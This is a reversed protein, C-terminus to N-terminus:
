RLPLTVTFTTGVGPESEVAIKGRHLEVCKKVITLGLGTGPIMGVNTARSFSEFLKELDEQPIGIGQDQIRFIAWSDTCVLDFQVTGGQPSYKIANSLLNTIIHGLLKEDMEANTCDGLFVFNLIHHPCVSIQISEVIERCFTELDMRSPEFKLRGAEAKGITLIDELLQTMRLVASQIRRFHNHKKEESLRNSYRELLETSSQITTLPTRFEHSVLSVFGSRLDSLEREKELAKRIEVEAQKRETIDRGVAQYEIINGQEDFIVARDTWQNWRIEGSPLIVRHEYTVIPQVKSMSNISQSVSEQDEAPILPMFSRGIIESRQQSFYRCYADNVFTLIKDPKYRCIFETQDEIIARYRAESKRLAELAQKRETIDELMGLGYLVEGAEDKLIMSTLNGWLVERNKKLYREEIQFSEIEGQNVRDLYTLKREWDEPHTIDECDLAKLESETYGLMDRLARNVRFFRGDFGTLGMGLPAEDFVRRFQEESQRLAVEKQQREAIEINLQENAQKLEATREEVKTELESLAQQLLAEAQKRETIDEITGVHGILQGQETYMPSTRAQVWRVIGEPTQFRYEQSCEQGQRACASWDACVWQRDSPHVSQAWGGTLMAEFTLGTITLLRRNAYLCGGEVDALFIGVPSCACLHRFRAESAKLAEESQKRDSIDIHSGVMRVPNGAEDWLAQARSLIWKYSGNKCRMRYEAMYYPTKGELHEQRVQRVWGIDDPHVRMAWADLNDLVEDEKYGLIEKWRTSYFVENTKLNLDWLGANSGQLALQWREESERLAEQIRKRETINAIFGVRRNLNGNSDPYSQGNDELTIYTGDKQRMRYEIHAPEKTAIARELEQRVKQVDDPHILEMWQDITGTLEEASYGFVQEVNHGWIVEETQCDWEYLLMGNIQGAAEYRNRWQTLEEVARQLNQEALKHATLDRGEAILLEVQGTEDKLPKLSFDITIVTDDPALIDAEYRVVNGLAAQAIASKLQAQTGPSITWCKLEWFPHGVVQSRDLQCFDMATQNDELVTGDLKLLSSFQFTQNFVARFLRENELELRQHRTEEAQKAVTIDKAVAYSLGDQHQLVRWSLWRYSGDQHRYRNEYEAVNEKNCESEISLTVAVDDPHVFEIWPTGLLESSSWGLVKKWAPNLQKFYGDQGRLCLLDSSLTFFINLSSEAKALQEILNIQTKSSNMCLSFEYDERGLHESWM